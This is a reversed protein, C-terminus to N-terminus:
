VHNTLPGTNVPIKNHVVGDVRNTHGVSYRGLLTNVMVM